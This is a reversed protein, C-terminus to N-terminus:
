RGMVSLFDQLSRGSAERTQLIFSSIVEDEQYEFNTNPGCLEKWNSQATSEIMRIVQSGESVCTSTPCVARMDSLHPDQPDWKQRTLITLPKCLSVM